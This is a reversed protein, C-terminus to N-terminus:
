SRSGNSVEQLNGCYQEFWPGAGAGQGDDQAMACLLEDVTLRNADAQEALVAALAPSVDISM